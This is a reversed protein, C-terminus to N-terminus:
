GDSQLSLALRFGIYSYRTAPELDDRSAARCYLASFFCSGGRFVRDVGSAPGQPNEVLGKKCCEDYYKESFWDHCWEFVNGSMDYLGLENSLKQGVEHTEDNSNEKYWGVQKLKDSGAYLYEESHIGGRAAFEWEAEAPLRYQKKTM